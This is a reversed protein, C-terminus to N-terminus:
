SLDVVALDAAIQPRAAYVDRLLVGHHEFLSGWPQQGRQLRQFILVLRGGPALWRCLARNAHEVDATFAQGKIWTEPLVPCVMIIREYRTRFQEQGPIETPQLQMFDQSPRLSHVQSGDAMIADALVPCSSAQWTLKGDLQALQVARLAASPTLIAPIM